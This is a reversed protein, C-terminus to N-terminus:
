ECDHVAVVARVRLGIRGSTMQSLAVPTGMYASDSLM